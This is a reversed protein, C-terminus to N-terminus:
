SAISRLAWFHLPTQQPQSAYRITCTIVHITTRAIATRKRVTKIRIRGNDAVVDTTVQDTTRLRQVTRKGEVVSMQAHLTDHKNSVPFSLSLRQSSSGSQYHCYVDPLVGRLNCLVYRSDCDVPKETFVLSFSRRLVREEQVVDIRQLASVSHFFQIFEASPPVASFFSLVRTDEEVACQKLVRRFHEQSVSRLVAETINTVDDCNLQESLADSWESQEYRRREKKFVVRVAFLESEEGCVGEVRSWRAKGKEIECRRRMVHYGDRDFCLLSAETGVTAAKWAEQAACVAPNEASSVLEMGSVFFYHHFYYSNQEKLSLTLESRHSALHRFVDQPKMSTGELEGEVLFAVTTLYSGDETRRDEYHLYRATVNGAVVLLRDLAKELTQIPPSQRIGSNSDYKHRFISSHINALALSIELHFGGM